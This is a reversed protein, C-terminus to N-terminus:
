LGKGTTTLVLKGHKVGRAGILRDAIERVEAARGRTVIVELCNHEDLHVHLSSVVHGKHGHQIDTLTESLERTEHNYVLTIAGVVEGSGAEWDEKVLSDRILDRIAESRTAYGKKVLLKDFRELLRRDLSIGFRTIAMTNGNQLFTSCIDLATGM